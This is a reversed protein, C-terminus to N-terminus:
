PRGIDMGQGRPPMLRGQGMAQAFAEAVPVKPQFCSAGGCFASRSGHFCRSQVRSLSGPVLLQSAWLQQPLQKSGVSPVGLRAMTSAPVMSIEAGGYGDQKRTPSPKQM